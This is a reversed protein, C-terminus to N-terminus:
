DRQRYPFLLKGMAFLLRDFGYGCLALIVLSLYVHNPEGRRQAVIILKGMGTTMGVIEALIIYGFGIGFLLRISTWINPAALPVLVKFIMQLRNAGLTWGTDLYQESVGIIHQYTDVVVFSVSAVFIFMVKQQEDTGFWVITLPILAAIPVNRGFMTLPSIFAAVKRFCGAVIGLPIGILLALGYGQFVRWLSAILNRSLARDFWLSGLASFVETPSGITVPSIWRTEVPGRTAAWWALLILALCLAGMLLRWGVTVEGRLGYARGRGPAGSAAADVARAVNAEAQTKHLKPDV